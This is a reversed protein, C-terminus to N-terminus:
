PSASKRAAPSRRDLEDLAQKAQRKLPLPFESSAITETLLKRAEEPRPGALARGIEQSRLDARLDLRASLLFARVESPLPGALQQQIYALAEAFKKQNTLAQLQAAM